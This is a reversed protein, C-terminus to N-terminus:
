QINIPSDVPWWHIGRVFALSASSHHKRQNVGSCVTSCVISVRTIQYAMMIMIIDNCHNPNVFPKAGTSWCFIIKKEIYSVPINNLSISDLDIYQMSFISSFFIYLYKQYHKIECTAMNTHLMMKMYMLITCLWINFMFFVCMCQNSIKKCYWSLSPSGSDFKHSSSVQYM